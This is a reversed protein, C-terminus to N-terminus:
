ETQAIFSNYLSSTQPNSKQPNSQSFSGPVFYQIFGKNLDPKRAWVTTSMDYVGSVKYNETLVLEYNARLESNIQDNVWPTFYGNLVVYQFTRDQIAAKMADTGVQGEHEMYWTSAWAQPDQFGRFLHYKLVASAEAFVRDNPQMHQDLYTITQSMSPWSRQFRWHRSLNVWLSSIACIMIVASTLQTVNTVWTARQRAGFVWLSANAFGIGALPGLFVSAYVLHKWLSRANATGIHYTLPVLGGLFLLLFIRRDSWSSRPVVFVGTLISGIGFLYLMSIVNKTIEFRPAPEISYSGAFYSALDQQNYWVYPAILSIVIAAWLIGKGIMFPRNIIFLLGFIPMWFIAVYKILVACGFAIASIVLLTLQPLIRQRSKAHWLLIFALAMLFLSPTDYTGIMALNLTVSSFFFIGATVLSVLSSRSIQYSLHGVIIGTGLVCLMAFYRIGELGWNRNLLASMIPYIYSGGMWSLANEWTSGRLYEEGVTAYIAEDVFATNYQLNRSILGWFSVLIVLWGLHDWTLNYAWSNIKVKM